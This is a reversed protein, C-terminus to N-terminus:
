MSRTPQACTYERRHLPSKARARSEEPFAHSMAIRVAAQSVRVGYRKRVISRVARYGLVHRCDETIANILHLLLDPNLDETKSLGWKRCNKRLGSDSVSINYRRMLVDRVQDHTYHDFMIKIAIKMNASNSANRM